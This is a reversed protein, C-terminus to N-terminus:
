LGPTKADKRSRILGKLWAADEPRLVDLLSLICGLLVPYVAPRLLPHAIHSALWIGISATILCYLPLRLPVHQGTIKMLRRFSLLFNLLHTLAFSIFYGDMGYKPLLLYLFIIDLINTIINYRVCIRQQGLGKIMADTIADCYLMPILLAYRKLDRAAGMDGYLKRCLPDAALYMLGFFLLGYITASKLSRRVLYRIRKRSGAAACRALEPILLEALGFLICAPFMLVPFVMGSVIGFAALPDTMATNLALRKPVMLNEATSIGTRLDDAAALPLATQCLRRTLSIRPGTPSRQRWRLFVLCLLTLMSSLASGLVVAQCAKAADSGTRFHLLSLTIVMSALQEAVEVAALTGIRNAATFYGTMVGCLCTAPLFAALLRLANVTRIDGIWNQAILPAFSWLLAGVASSFLISYLFCSSLVQSVNQHENRGLEEATLYMTATRIGGTGAVMAMGGVSMVLQLLGIGAAGIRGSLYVQFSTGAFRLLLNVLTLLIASYFIPMPKRLFIGGQGYGIGSM